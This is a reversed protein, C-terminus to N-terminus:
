GNLDIDWTILSHDSGGGEVRERGSADVDDSVYIRDIPNDVSWFGPDNEDDNEGSLPGITGEGSSNFDGLLITNDGSAEALRALTDYQTQRADAGDKDASLHTSFVTATEGGAEITVELATRNEGNPHAETKKPDNAGLDHRAVLANGDADRALPADPGMLVANGYTGDDHELSSGYVVTYDKVGDPSQVQANYVTVVAEPDGAEAPEGTETYYEPTITVKSSRQDEDSGTITVTGDDAETREYTIPEQLGAEEASVQALVYENYDTIGDPLHKAADTTNVDVEQLAVVDLGHNVVQDALHATTEPANAKHDKNGAALNYTGVKLEGNSQANGPAPPEQVPQVPPRSAGIGSLISM